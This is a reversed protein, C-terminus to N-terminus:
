SSSRPQQKSEKRLDQISASNSEYFEILNQAYTKSKNSMITKINEFYLAFKRSYDLTEQNSTFSMPQGSWQNFLHDIIPQYLNVDISLKQAMFLYKFTNRKYKLLSKALTYKADESTEKTNTIRHLISQNIGFCQNLFYNALRFYHYHADKFQFKVKSLIYRIQEINPSGVKTWCEELYKNLADNLNLFKLSFLKNIASKYETKTLSKSQNKLLSVKSDLPNIASEMWNIKNLIDTLQALPLKNNNLLELQTDRENGPSYYNLFLRKCEPVLSSPVLDLNEMKLLYKLQSSISLLCKFNERQHKAHCSLEYFRKYEKQLNESSTFKEDQTQQLADCLPIYTHNLNFRGKKTDYSVKYNMVTSLEIFRILLAKLSKASNNNTSSHKNIIKGFKHLLGTVLTGLSKLSNNSLQFIANPLNHHSMLHNAADFSINKNSFCFYFSSNPANNLHFYDMILLPKRQKSKSFLVEPFFHLVIKVIPLHNTHCAYDLINWSKEDRYSLDAHQALHFLIWQQKEQLTKPSINSTNIFDDVFCAQSSPKLFPPHPFKQIYLKSINLFRRGHKNMFNSIQDIHANYFDIDGTNLARNIKQYTMRGLPPSKPSPIPYLNLHIAKKSLQSNQALFVLITSLTKPSFSKQPDFSTNIKSISNIFPQINNSLTECHANLKNLRESDLNFKSACNQIELLSKCFPQLTTLLDTNTLSLNLQNPDLLNILSDFVLAANHFNIRNTIYILWFYIQRINIDDELNVANYTISFIQAACLKPHSQYINEFASMLKTNSTLNQFFALKLHNCFPKQISKITKIFHSCAKKLTKVKEFEPYIEKCLKEFMDTSFLFHNKAQPLLPNKPHNHPIQADELFQFITKPQLLPHIYFPNLGSPFLQKDLDLGNKVFSVIIPAWKSYQDNSEVPSDDFLLSKSDSYITNEINLIISAFLNGATKDKLLTPNDRIKAKYKDTMSVIKEISHKSKELKHNFDLYLCDCYYKLKYKEWILRIEELITNKKDAYQSLPELNLNLQKSVDIFSNQTYVCVKHLLDLILSFEPPPNAELARYIEKDIDEIKAELLMHYQFSSALDHLLHNAGYEFFQNIVKLSKHANYFIPEPISLKGEPATFSITHYKNVQEPFHKLIISLADLHIQKVALYTLDEIKITDSFHNHSLKQLIFDFIFNEQVRSLSNSNIRDSKFYQAKFILWPSTNQKTTTIEKLLDAGNEIAQIFAFSSASIVSRM